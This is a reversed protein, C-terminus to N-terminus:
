KIIEDPYPVHKGTNQRIPMQAFTDRLYKALDRALEKTKEQNEGVLNHKEGIDKTIHYLEFDQTDHYYILKYDGKRIASSAGLGLARNYGYWNNPLHWFLSRKSINKQPTFLQNVFSKGDIAQTTTVNKINAIELLTPFIDEIIIPNTNTQNGTVKGKWSVLFPIRIGGEKLSGKGSSLPFNCSNTPLARAWVDLGGNDSLFIICTNETLKEQELFDMLDGLSKDMGEILSAYKVETLHMGKNIYRQIFRKDGMIPVHIAYHSMNLFFPKDKPRKRLEEIAKRTLAETVFIDKGHFEELHPVSFDNNQNPQYGFNEMGEYSKLGGAAHGGINVDFGMNLPNECPTGQAAFHAKGIHITHYNAQQLLQPLTTAVFTNPIGNETAIGNVNWQPYILITDKEDSSINHRLTWNTVRHKAANTGTFLSVRSPSCIPTAYAQTFKIGQRALREMNPTHYTRNFNTTDTHFPVSTDQWGMDDVVFLLINPTPFKSDSTEKKRILSCGIILFLLFSLRYM